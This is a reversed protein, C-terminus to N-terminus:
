HTATGGPAPRLATAFRQQYTSPPMGLRHSFARRMTEPHSFGAKRAAVAVSEGRLLLAKATELRTQEVFQVPSMGVEAGFLRALHRASVGGLRALSQLDYAADPHTLVADVVRRVSEHTGPSTQLLASFQSQGGPRRMFLVLQQAVTRALDAGHDEETLSLALDIGASVGASTHLSGDRVFLADAVVETAPSLRALLATHAWHTTARRGDLAGVAALLFAGTCISAVREATRLLHRTAARLEEPLPATPLADAGPIVVTDAEAVDRATGDVLLQMGTSTRVPLGDPSVYSLEYTAGWRSAEAFVEAPGSVDLQKVGDFVLFVVRHIGM